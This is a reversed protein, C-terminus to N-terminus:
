KSNRSSHPQPSCPLIADQDTSWSLNFYRQSCVVHDSWSLEVAVYQCPHGIITPLKSKFKWKKSWLTNPDQYLSSSYGNSLTYWAPLTHYGAVLFIMPSTLVVMFRLTMKGCTHYLSTIISHSHYSWLKQFPSKGSNINLIENVIKWCKWCYRYHFIQSTCTYVKEYVKTFKQEKQM